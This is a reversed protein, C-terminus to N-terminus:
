PGAGPRRLRTADRAHAREGSEDVTSQHGGVPGLGERRDVVPDGREPREQALLDGGAPGVQRGAVGDEAGEARRQGVHLHEDDALVRVRRGAVRDPEAEGDLAVHPRERPAQDVDVGLQAGVDAHDRGLVAVQGAPGVLAHHEEVPDEGHPGARGGRVALLPQSSTVSHAIRASTARASAPDGNAAIRQPRSAWDSLGISPLVGDTSDTCGDGSDAERPNKPDWGNLRTLARSASRPASGM